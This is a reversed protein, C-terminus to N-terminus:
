PYIEAQVLSFLLALIEARYEPHNDLYIGTHKGTLIETPIELAIVSGIEPWSKLSISSCIESSIEPFSASVVVSLKKSNKKKM